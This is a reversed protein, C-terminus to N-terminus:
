CVCLRLIGSFFRIVTVKSKGVSPENLNERDVIKLILEPAKRAAIEPAMMQNWKARVVAAYGKNYPACPPPQHEGEPLDVFKIVIGISQTTLVKGNM